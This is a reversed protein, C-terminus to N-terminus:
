VEEMMERRKKESKEVQGNCQEDLGEEKKKRKEIKKEWRRKQLTSIREGM